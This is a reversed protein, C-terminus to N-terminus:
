IAVYKMNSDRFGVGAEVDSAVSVENFFKYKLVESWQKNFSDPKCTCMNNRYNWTGFSYSVFLALSYMLDLDGERTVKDLCEFLRDRNKLAKNDGMYTHNGTLQTHWFALKTTIDDVEDRKLSENMSLMAYCYERFFDYKKRVANMAKRSIAYKQEKIPNVVEMKGEANPKLLIQFSDRWSKHNTNETYPAGTILYRKNDHQQYWYWKGKVSEIYGFDRTVYNVFAMTTPTHWGYTRIAISGDPYFEVCDHDKYLTCSYTTIYQGLFGDDVVRRNEKIQYWTYRRVKGLPRVEPNRGRIPKVEQYHKKAEAYNSLTPIGACNGVGWYSKTYSM